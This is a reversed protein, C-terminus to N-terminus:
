FYFHAINIPALLFMGAKGVVMNTDAQHGVLTTNIIVRDATILADSTTHSVQIDSALSKDFRIFNDALIGSSGPSLLPTGSDIAVGGSSQDLDSPLLSPNCSCAAIVDETEILDRPRFNDTLSDGARYM